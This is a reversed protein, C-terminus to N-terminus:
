GTRPWARRPALSGAPLPSIITSITYGGPPRELQGEFLDLVERTGAPRGVVWPALCLAALTAERFHMTM